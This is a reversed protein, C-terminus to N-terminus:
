LLIISNNDLIPPIFINKTQISKVERRAENENWFLIDLLPASCEIRYIMGVIMGYEQLKWLVTIIAPSLIQSGLVWAM